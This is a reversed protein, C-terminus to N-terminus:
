PRGSAEDAGGPLRQREAEEWMQRGLATYRGSTLAGPTTAWKPANAERAAQEERLAREVHPPLVSAVSTLLAFTGALDEPALPGAQWTLLHRGEIRLAMGRADDRVLRDMVRPTIMDHVYRPDGGKVRWRRNFEASEFDVDMGGVLKTARAVLDEPLIDITPYEAGLEVTSIRFEHKVVTDERGAEGSRREAFRRTFHACQRGEFVGSVVDVDERDFGTGFPYSTLGSAVTLSRAAHAWGISAAFEALKSRRGASRILSVVLAAGLALAALGALVAIGLAWGGPLDWFLTAVVALLGVATAAVNRASVRFM